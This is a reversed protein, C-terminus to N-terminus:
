HADYFRRYRPSQILIDDFQVDWQKLLIWIAQGTLWVAAVVLIWKPRQMYLFLLAGYLCIVVWVASLMRPAHWTLIREWIARHIPAQYGSLYPDSVDRRDRRV